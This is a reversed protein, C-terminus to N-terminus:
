FKDRINEKQYIESCNASRLKIIDFPAKRNHPVSFSKRFMGACDPPPRLVFLPPRAAVGKQNNKRNYGTDNKKKFELRCIGNKIGFPIVKYWCWAGYWAGHM